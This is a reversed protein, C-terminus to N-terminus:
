FPAPIKVLPMALPEPHGQVKLKKPLIETALPRVTPFRQWHRLSRQYLSIIYYLNLISRSAREKAPFDKLIKKSFKLKIKNQDFDVTHINKGDHTYHILGFKSKLSAFLIINKM